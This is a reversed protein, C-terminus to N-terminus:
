CPVGRGEFFLESTPPQVDVAESSFGFLDLKTTLHPCGWRRSVMKWLVRNVVLLIDGGSDVRGSADTNQPFYEGVFSSRARRRGRSSGVHVDDINAM